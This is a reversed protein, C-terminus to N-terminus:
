GAETCQLLHQKTKVTRLHLMKQSQASVKAAPEVLLCDDDPNSNENESEPQCIDEVDDEQEHELREIQDDVYNKRKREKNRESRREINKRLQLKKKKSIKLKQKELDKVVAHKANM